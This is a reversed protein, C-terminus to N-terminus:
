FSGFTFGGAMLLCQSELVKWKDLSVVMEV